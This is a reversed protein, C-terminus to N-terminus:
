LTVVTTVFYFELVKLSEQCKM